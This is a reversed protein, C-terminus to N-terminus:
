SKQRKLVVLATDSKAKSVFETPRFKEAFCINLDDGRLLYIGLLTKGKDRGKTVRMDINKPTKTLDLQYTFESNSGPEAPRVALKDGEFTYKLAQAVEEPAKEGGLQLSVVQWTGQLQAKDGKDAEETAKKAPEANLLLGFAFLIVISLSLRM